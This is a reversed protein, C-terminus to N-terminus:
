DRCIPQGSVVGCVSRPEHPYWRLAEAVSTIANTISLLETLHAKQAKEALLELQKDLIEITREKTM